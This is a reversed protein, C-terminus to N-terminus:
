RQAGNSEQGLGHNNRSVYYNLPLLLVLVGVGAFCSVGLELYLLYIIIGVQLPAAWILHILSMSVDFRSADVSMLNVIEGVTTRKRVNNGISIAKRYVSTQIAATVRTGLRFSVFFYQQNGLLSLISNTVFMLVVIFFGHWLPQKEEETNSHGIFNLLWKLLWPNALALMDTFLKLVGGM